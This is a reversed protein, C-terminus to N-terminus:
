YDTKSIKQRCCESCLKPFPLLSGYQSQLVGQVNSGDNMNSPFSQVCFKRFEAPQCASVQELPQGHKPSCECCSPLEVRSIPRGPDTQTQHEEKEWQQRSEPPQKFRPAIYGEQAVMLGAVLLKSNPYHICFTCGVKKMLSFYCQVRINTGFILPVTDTVNCCRSSLDSFLCYATLIRCINAGNEIYWSQVESYVSLVGIRGLKM